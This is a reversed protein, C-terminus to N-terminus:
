PKAPEDKTTHCDKCNKLDRTHHCSYCYEIPAKDQHMKHCNFCEVKGVHTDHPNIVKGDDTTFAKSNKTKEVLEDYGGHCNLCLDNPYKRQKFLKGPAKTVKEHVSQLAPLEHCTFCDKAADSHRSGLVKDNKMSEVYSQHCLSCNSNKSFSFATTQAPKTKKAKKSDAESKNYSVAVISTAVFIVAILLSVSKRKMKFMQKEM